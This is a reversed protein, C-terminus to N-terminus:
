ITIINWLIVTKSHKQDFLDQHAYSIKEFATFLVKCIGFKQVTTHILTLWINFTWM